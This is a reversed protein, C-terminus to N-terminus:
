ELSNLHKRISNKRLIRLFKDVVKPDFQEGKQKRLEREIDDLTMKEKYPRGFFMADFADM